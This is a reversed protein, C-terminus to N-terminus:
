DLELMANLAEETRAEMGRTSSEFDTRFKHLEDAIGMAALIAAKQPHIGPYKDVAERMRADVYGALERIYEEPEQGRVTYKQGLIFVEASGM